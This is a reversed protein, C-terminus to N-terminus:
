FPVSINKAPCIEPTSPYTSDIAEPSTAFKGIAKTLLIVISGLVGLMLVFAFAASHIYTVNKLLKAVVAMSTISMSILGIGIAVVM